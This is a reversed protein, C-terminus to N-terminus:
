EGFIPFKDVSSISSANNNNNAMKLIEIEAKEPFVLKEYSDSIKIVIVQYEKGKNSIRTELTAKLEKVVM